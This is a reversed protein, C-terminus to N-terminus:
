FLWSQTRRRSPPPARLSSSVRSRGVDQFTFRSPFQSSSAHVLHAPVHRTTRNTGTNQAIPRHVSVSQMFSEVDPVDHAVGGVGLGYYLVAWENEYPSTNLPVKGIAHMSIETTIHGTGTSNM